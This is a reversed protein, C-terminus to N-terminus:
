AGLERQIRQRGRQRMLDLIRPLTGTYLRYLTLQVPLDWAGIYRVV